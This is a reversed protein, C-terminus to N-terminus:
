SAKWYLLITTLVSSMHVTTVDSISVYLHVHVSSTSIIGPGVVGKCDQVAKKFDWCFVLNEEYIKTYWHKLAGYIM